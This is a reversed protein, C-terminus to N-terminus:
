PNSEWLFPKPDMMYLERPRDHAHSQNTSRAKIAFWHVVHIFFVVSLHAFSFCIFAIPEDDRVQKEARARLKRWVTHHAQLPVCFLSCPRRSRFIVLFCAEVNLFSGKGFADDNTNM